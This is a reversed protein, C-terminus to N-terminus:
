ACKLCRGMEQSWRSGYLWCFADFVYEPVGENGFRNIREAVVDFPMLELIESAENVLWMEIVDRPIKQLRPLTIPSGPKWGDPENFVPFPPWDDENREGQDVLLLLLKNRSAPGAASCAEIVLPQWFEHFFSELLASTTARGLAAKLVVPGFKLRGLVKALVAKLSIKSPEIDFAHGLDAVLTAMPAPNLSGLDIPVIQQPRVNWATLIRRVVILHGYNREGHILLACPTRGKYGFITQQQSVYDLRVLRDFVDHAQDPRVPFLLRAPGTILCLQEFPIIQFVGTAEDAATVIGVLCSTQQDLVPAGSMGGRVPAGQNTYGNIQVWDGGVPDGWRGDAVAGAPHYGTPYGFSIVNAGRIPKTRSWCFYEEEVDDLLDLVAIDKGPGDFTRTKSFRVKAHLNEDSLASRLTVPTGDPVPRDLSGFVAASVVHGCTLVSQRDVTFATGVISNAANLVRYTIRRLDKDDSM